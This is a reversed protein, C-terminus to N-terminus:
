YAAAGGGDREIDAVAIVQHTKPLMEICNAHGITPRMALAHGLKELAAAQEAPLRAEHWIKDPQWQHHLRPAAIAAELTRGHDILQMLIQAVTTTITPGGPSGLVARLQGEHTVITPSMSSLMRKGPAISNQTGQVLGFMNPTGVKATFDDMENNLIVGTGPVVLKAGFGGNLTYTNAIAMGKADVVSFHTTQESEALNVGASIASSPTAHAPDIDRVRDRVYGVDLLRTLPLKVFDPDGLLQNRDAYIRRLAEVYLHERPVSDWELKHMETVEAAALIQRLVVGGASPPPMTAVQYGRYDFVIPQRELAKYGALDAAQWLGGMGEVKQALATAWTGRYFADQGHEAIFQLTAALEPQRWVDGEAYLAGDPKRVLALSSQLAAQLSTAEVPVQKAYEQMREGAWRLDDAHYHDLAIGDRALRVAPELLEAWPRSGFRQHAAWFGAVVGPIGAAKPGVRSENTPQGDPGIYMDAFAQAPATERYDLATIHGDQSRVLMFGGGGINGASPHTVGLAFGVAVAADVANGGRRLVEVGIESAHPEASSVGGGQGRAVAVGQLLAAPAAVPSPPPGPLATIAVERAAVAPPPPASGCAAVTFLASGCAAVALLWAGRGAWSRARVLNSHAARASPPASAATAHSAPSRSVPGLSGAKAPADASYQLM